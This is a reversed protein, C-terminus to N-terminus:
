DGGDIELFVCLRLGSVFGNRTHVMSRSNEKRNYRDKQSCYLHLCLQRHRGLLQSSDFEQLGPLCLPHQM